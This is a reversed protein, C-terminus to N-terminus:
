CLGDYFFLIHQNGNIYMINEQEYEGGELMTKKLLNGSSFATSIM